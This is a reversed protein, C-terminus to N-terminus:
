MARFVPLDVVGDVVVLTEALELEILEVVDIALTEVVALEETIVFEDEPV